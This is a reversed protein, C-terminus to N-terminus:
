KGRVTASRSICIQDGYYNDRYNCIQESTASQNAQKATQSTIITILQKM